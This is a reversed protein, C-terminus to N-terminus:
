KSAIIIDLKAYLINLQSMLYDNNMVVDETLCNNQKLNTLQPLIDSSIQEAQNFIEKNQTYSVLLTNDKTLMLQYKAYYSNFDKILFIVKSTDCEIGAAMAPANGNTNNSNSGAQQQQSYKLRYYRPVFICVLTACIIAIFLIALYVYDRKGFTITLKDKKKQTM